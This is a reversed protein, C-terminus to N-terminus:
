FNEREIWGDDARYLRCVGDGGTIDGYSIEDWCETKVIDAFPHSGGGCPYDNGSRTLWARFLERAEDLTDVTNSTSPPEPIPNPRGADHFLVTFQGLM